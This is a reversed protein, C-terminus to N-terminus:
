HSIIKEIRTQLAKGLSSNGFDTKLFFAKSIGLHDLSALTSYFNRALDSLNKISGLVIFHNQHQLFKDRTTPNIADFEEQLLLLATRREHAIGTFSGVPFIQINPAYHRYKSGPTVGREFGNVDRIKAKPLLSQIEMEGIVGHRLIVIENVSRADVITSEIGVKCEGGDVIGDVKNGLDNEVMLASTPSVKGSTNASPAAIPCNLEKIIDLLIPHDPIRVIVQESGCTAFKLPSDEPLDLMFSIPGPTFHTILKETASPIEKVSDRIQELSYFHCILPNDAPRNKIEFVKAIAEPNLADAALGYVTETPVAVVNGEKLLQIARETGIIM